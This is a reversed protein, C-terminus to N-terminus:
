ARAPDDLPIPFRPKILSRCEPVFIKDNPKLLMDYRLDHQRVRALDIAYGISKSSDATSTRMLYAYPLQPGGPTCEPDVIPTGGLRAVLAEIAYAGAATLADTLRAGSDLVVNGPKKVRGLVLVTFKAAAPPATDAARDGDARAPPPVVLALLM